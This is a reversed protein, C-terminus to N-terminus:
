LVKRGGVLYAVAAAKKKAEVQRNKKSVRKNVTENSIYRKCFSALSRRSARVCVRLRRDMHGRVNRLENGRWKERLSKTRTHTYIMGVVFLAALTTKSLPLVDDYWMSETMEHWDPLDDEAKRM